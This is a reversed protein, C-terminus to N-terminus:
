TLGLSWGTCLVRAGAQSGQHGIYVVLISVGGGAARTGRAMGMRM